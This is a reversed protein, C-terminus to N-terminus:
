WPLAIGPENAREESLTQKIAMAQNADMFLTTKRQEKDYQSYLKIGDIDFIRLGNGSANSHSTTFPLEPSFGRIQKFHDQDISVKAFGDKTEFINRVKLSNTNNM